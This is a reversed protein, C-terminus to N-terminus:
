AARLSLKQELLRVLMSAALSLVLFVFGAFLMVETYQFKDAGIVTAYFMMEAVGITSLLPTTKFMSILMNGFAPLIPRIAIPLIVHKYATFRTFNLATAADWQGRPVSGLGARYIEAAYCSEHLGIAILGTVLASLTIGIQPGLFFLFYMQILLPTSRIFELLFAVPAAILWTHSSRLGHLALGGVVAIAMGGMTAAFTTRVGDLLLPWNEWIVKWDLTM